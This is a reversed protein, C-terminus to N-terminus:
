NTPQPVLVYAIKFAATAVDTTRAIRDGWSWWFWWMGDDAPAVAVTQRSGPVAPNVVSLNPAECEGTVRTLFNREALERALTELQTVAERPADANVLSM